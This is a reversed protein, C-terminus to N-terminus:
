RATVRDYEVINIRLQTRAEILDARSTHWQSQADLLETLTSLGVEYSQLSADLSAQAQAMAREASSLQRLGSRVNAIAQQVELNLQKYVNERSLRANDVEIRAHKVKKAGEGWHFIPVQLSLMITWGNGKINQSYPYYNGDPGQQMMDLKINGYASWGAQLGLQPLYDGRTLNVQQSKAAIDADLLQVEPRYDLNYDGFGLPLGVPVDTDAVEIPTDPDVGIMNCLSMRCLDAGNVVQGLQYEVQLRRADVRLLDTETSLGAEVSALTQMYVTDVLAKYSQMMEVKALVAVYTWYSTEANATVQIEKLRLQRDAAQQGIRALKNAAVIKGGAFIPQTVNIGAMYLGRMSLNMAMEDYKSDPLRWGTTVSGSFNPLYATRAIGRQLDSQVVSNKAIQIEESSELAMRMCTPADVSIASCIVPSLLSIIAILIRNHM